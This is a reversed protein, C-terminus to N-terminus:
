WQCKGRDHAHGRELLRWMWRVIYPLQYPEALEWKGTINSSLAMPGLSTQLQWSM